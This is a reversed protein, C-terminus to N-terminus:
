VTTGLFGILLVMLLAGGLLVGFLYAWHPGVKVAELHEKWVDEDSLQDEKTM